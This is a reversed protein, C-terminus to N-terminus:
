EKIGHAAEIPSKPLPMWYTPNAFRGSSSCRWEFEDQQPEGLCGYRKRGIYLPIFKNCYLLVETDKPATEIPKWETLPKQAPQPTTYLKADVLNAIAFEGDRWEIYIQGSSNRKVEGIPEGQEQKEAEAIAQRLFKIGKEVKGTTSQEAPVRPGGFVTTLPEMYGHYTELAELALKMAEKSM